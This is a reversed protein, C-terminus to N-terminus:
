GGKFKPDYAFLPITCPQRNIGTFIQTVLVRHDKWEFGYQASYLAEDEPAPSFDTANYVTASWWLVVM